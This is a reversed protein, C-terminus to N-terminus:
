SEPYLWLRNAPVFKFYYHIFLTSNELIACSSRNTIVTENAPSAKIPMNKLGRCITVNAIDATSEIAIYLSFFQYNPNVLYIWENKEEYQM